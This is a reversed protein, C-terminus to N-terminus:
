IKEFKLTTIMRHSGDRFTRENTTFGKYLVKTHKYTAELEEFSGVEFLKVLEWTNVAYNLNNYNVIACPVPCTPVYELGVFTVVSNPQVEEKFSHAPTRM